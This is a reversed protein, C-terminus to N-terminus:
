KKYCRVTLCKYNLSENTWWFGRFYHCKSEFVSGDNRQFVFTDDENFYSNERLEFVGDM